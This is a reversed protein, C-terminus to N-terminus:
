LNVTASPEPQRSQVIPIGYGHRNASAPQGTSTSPLGCDAARRTCRLHVVRWRSSVVTRSDFSEGSCPAVRGEAQTGRWLYGEADQLIAYISARLLGQRVQWIRHVHQTLARNADVAFALPPFVLTASLLVVATWALPPKAHM